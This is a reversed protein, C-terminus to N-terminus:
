RKEASVAIAELLCAASQLRELAGLADSTPQLRIGVYDDYGRACWPPVGYHRGRESHNMNESVALVRRVEPHDRLFSYAASLCTAIDASDTVFGVVASFRLPASSERPGELQARVLGTPSELEICPRNPITLGTQRYWGPACPETQALADELAATIRVKTSPWASLENIDALMLDAIPNPINQLVDGWYRLRVTKGTEALVQRLADDVGTHERTALLVVQDAEHALDILQEIDVHADIKAETGVTGAPEATSLWIDERREGRKKEVRVTDPDVTGTLGLAASAEWPHARILIALARTAQPEERILPQIMYIM